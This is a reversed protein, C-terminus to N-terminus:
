HQSGGVLIDLPRVIVYEGGGHELVLLCLGALLHCIRAQTLSLPGCAVVMMRVRVDRM